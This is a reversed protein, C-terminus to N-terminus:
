SYSSRQAAMGRFLANVSAQVEGVSDMRGHQMERALAAGVGLATGVSNELVDGFRSTGPGESYELGDISDEEERERPVPPKLTQDSCGLTHPLEM